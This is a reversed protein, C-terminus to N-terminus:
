CWYAYSKLLTTVANVDDQNNNDNRTEKSKENENTNSSENKNKNDKKDQEDNNCNDNHDDIKKHMLKLALDHLKEERNHYDQNESLEIM